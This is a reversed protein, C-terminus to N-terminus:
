TPGKTLLTHAKHMVNAADMIRQALVARVDDNPCTDYVDIPDLAKIEALANDLRARATRGAARVNGGRQTARDRHDEAEGGILRLAETPEASIAAAVIPRLTGVPMATTLALDAAAAFVADHDLRGLEYRVPEPLRAFGEIGAATARQTAELANAAISLKPQAIGVIAAADLQACLARVDVTGDPRLPQDVPPPQPKRTCTM